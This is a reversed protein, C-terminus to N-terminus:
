YPLETIEGYAPDRWDDVDGRLLEAMQCLIGGERFVEDSAEEVKGPASTYVRSDFAPKNRVPFWHFVSPKDFFVEAARRYIAEQAYYWLSGNAEYLNGHKDERWFPQCAKAFASPEVDKTTKLDGILVFKGLDEVADLKVRILLGSEPHRWRIPFEKLEADVLMTANPNKRVEDAMAYADALEARTMLERGENEEVFADWANGRKHGKATLVDAPIEVVSQLGGELLIEHVCTGLKMEPTVAKKPVTGFIHEGAFQWRNKAFARITTSSVGGAAHYDDNTGADYTEAKGPALDVGDDLMLNPRRLM